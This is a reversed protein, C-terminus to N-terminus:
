AYNKHVAEKNAYGRDTYKSMLAVADRIAMRLTGREPTYFKANVRRTLQAIAEKTKMKSYDDDSYCRLKIRCEYELGDELRGNYYVRGLYFKEGTVEDKYAEKNFDYELVM